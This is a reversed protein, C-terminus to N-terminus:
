MVKDVIGPRAHSEDTIQERKGLLISAGHGRYRIVGLTTCPSVRGRGRVVCLETRNAVLSPRVHM